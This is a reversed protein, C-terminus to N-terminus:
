VGLREREALIFRLVRTAEEREAAAEPADGQPAKDPHWKLLLQRLVAKLEEPGAAKAAALVAVVQREPGAELRRVRAAAPMRGLRHVRAL